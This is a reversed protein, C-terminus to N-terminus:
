QTETLAQLFAVIAKKEPGSLNLSDFPLTQTALSIGIGRGGGVHYFEVVEDLTQYVGNHMYPATKAVNRVTPTKFAYRLEEIRHIAYRGPDPDIMANKWVPSAPVGIIESESRNYWPPVNGNFLPVFHCTGCKAKGLFLNFGQKEEQGLALSDGRMYADFRSTFPSLSRVYSALANRLEFSSLTDANLQFVKRFMAAYAEDAMLKRSLGAASFNFERKNKMVEDAQDELTVSRMDYFQHSQLAAYFLGPTNRELSGGHVLDAAKQRGDTFFMEPQHCSGCSITGSASLRKDYFLKRGLEVKEKSSKGSAYNNYYDADFGQGKMLDALTGTFPKVFTSDEKPMLLASQERLAEGLPMLHDRIFALRDFGEFDNNRELFAIAQESLEEGRQTSGQKGYFAIFFDKLGELSNAAEPISRMSLPADFGSIGLAAIRILEHQMLEDAHRPLVSQYQMNSRIYQVDAKMLRIENVLNDKMSDNYGGFVMQEMVQFGHPPWAKGDEVRIEPLAPGNIRKTLGQFFYEAVGEIRKYESRTASFLLKLEEEGNGAQASRELADLKAILSDSRM